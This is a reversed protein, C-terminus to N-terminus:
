GTPVRAHRCSLCASPQVSVASLAVALWQGVCLRHQSVHCFVMAQGVSVTGYINALAQFKDEESCCKVYFQKINELSQEERKLKLVVPSPIITTAFKM